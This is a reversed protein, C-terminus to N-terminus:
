PPQLNELQSVITSLIQIQEKKYDVLDRTNDVYTLVIKMNRLQPILHDCIDQVTVCDSTPNPSISINVPNSFSLDRTTPPINIATPVHHSLSKHSITTPIKSSKKELFLTIRKISRITKAPSQHCM